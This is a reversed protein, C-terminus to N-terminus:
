VIFEMVINYKGDLFITHLVNRYLALYCIYLLHQLVYQTQTMSTNLKDTAFMVVLFYTEYISM